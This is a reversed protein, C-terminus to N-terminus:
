LGPPRWGDELCWQLYEGVTGPLQKENLLQSAVNGVGLFEIADKPQLNWNLLCDKDNTRPSCAGLLVAVVALVLLRKM